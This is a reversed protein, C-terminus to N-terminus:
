LPTKRDANSVEFLTKSQDSFAFTGTQFNTANMFAGSDAVTYLADPNKLLSRVYNSYLFTAIGGASAGTLLV